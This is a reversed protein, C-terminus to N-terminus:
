FIVSLGFLFVPFFACCVFTNKMLIVPMRFKVWIFTSYSVPPARTILYQKM